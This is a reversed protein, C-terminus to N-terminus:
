IFLEAFLVARSRVARWFRAAILNMEFVRKRSVGRREERGDTPLEVGGRKALFEIANPYDLNESRM